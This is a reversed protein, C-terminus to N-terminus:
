NYRSNTYFEHQMHNNLTQMKFRATLLYAFHSFFNEFTFGLLFCACFSLRARFILSFNYYAAMRVPRLRLSYFRFQISRQTMHILHLLCIVKDTRPIAFQIWVFVDVCEFCIINVNIHGFQRASYGYCFEFLVARALSEWCSVCIILYISSFLVSLYM